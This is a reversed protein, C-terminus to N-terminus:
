FNITTKVVLTGNSDTTKGATKFAEEVTDLGNFRHTILKRIDPLKAGGVPSGSVSAAAIEIAKPYANAYRWSPILTIERPTAESIPLVHNPVGLGILVVAGGSVTAYISAQLCSEAGTCEFTVSPRDVPKGDPWHLDTIQAATDKAIELKEETTAGRRPKVAVKFTAFGNDTAFKLRGEDIDAMIITKYGAVQAAVSVLLGVAGAGFILATGQTTPLAVKEARRVAHAAVALPELLAGTEYDLESPLKHVWKVPHNIREQLTGQYHPFKSGSSRFRLSPCINYTQSKCYECDGCAVGCEVAVKDGVHLDPNISAVQSGIATVEGASEHGLALPERVLISGNRFSSYYHLDSGCLTTSRIAIQVEDAGLPPVDRTELRLDQAGHLYQGASKAAVSM